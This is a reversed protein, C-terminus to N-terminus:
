GDRHNVLDVPEHSMASAVMKSCEGGSMDQSSGNKNMNSGDEYLGM